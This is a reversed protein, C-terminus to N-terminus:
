PLDETQAEDQVRSQLQWRRIAVSLLGTDTAAEDPTLLDRCEHMFRTREVHSLRGFSSDYARMQSVAIPLEAADILQATQEASLVLPLSAPEASREGPAVDRCRQGYDVIWWHGIGAFFAAHQERTLSSLAAELMQTDALRLLYQAGDAEIRLLSQLHRTLAHLTLTTDIVSVIPLEGCHKDLREIASQATQTDSSLSILVPSLDLAAEAFCGEFLSTHAVGALWRTMAAPCPRMQGKDVLAYSYTPLGDASPRPSWLAQHTSLAYSM